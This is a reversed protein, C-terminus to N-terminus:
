SNWPQSPDRRRLRRSSFLLRFVPRRPRPRWRPSARCVTTTSPCPTPRRTSRPPLASLLSPFRVVASQRINNCCLRSAQTRCVFMMVCVCVCVAVFMMVCVCCCNDDCLCVCVAVFMMVCVCVSVFLLVCCESLWVPVCCGSVWYPICCGSM